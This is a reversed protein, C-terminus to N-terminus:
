KDLGFYEDFESGFSKKEKLYSAVEGYKVKDDLVKDICDSVTEDSAKHELAYLAMNLKRPELTIIKSKDDVKELYKLDFIGGVGEHKKSGIAAKLLVHVAQKKNLSTEWKYEELASGVIDVSKITGSGSFDGVKVGTVLHGEGPYGVTYIEPKKYNSCLMLRAGLGDKDNKELIIRKVGEDIPTAPSTIERIHSFGYKRLVGDRFKKERVEHFANELGERLNIASDYNKKALKELVEDASYPNGIVGAIAQDNVQKIKNMIDQTLMLNLLTGESDQMLMVLDKNPILGISITM